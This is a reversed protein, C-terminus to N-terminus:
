ARIADAPRHELPVDRDARPVRLLLRAHVIEAVEEALAIAAPHQREDRRVPKRERDAKRDLNVRALPEDAQDLGNPQEAAQRKIESFSTQLLLPHRSFFPSAAPM